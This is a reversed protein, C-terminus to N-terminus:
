EGVESSEPPAENEAKEEVEDKDEEDFVRDEARWCEAAAARMDGPESAAEAAVCAAACRCWPLLLPLSLSLALPLVLPLVLPTTTGGSGGTGDDAAPRESSDGRCM